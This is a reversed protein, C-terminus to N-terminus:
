TSIYLGVMAGDSTWRVAAVCPMQLRGPMVGAEAAATLSSRDEFWRSCWMNKSVNLRCTRTGADAEIGGSVGSLVVYNVREETEEVQTRRGGDDV